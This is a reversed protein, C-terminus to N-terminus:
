LYVGMRLFLFLCVFLYGVVTPAAEKREKEEYVLVVLEEFSTEVCM